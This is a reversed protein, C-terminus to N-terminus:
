RTNLNRYTLSYMLDHLSVRNLVCISSISVRNLVFGASFWVRNPRVDGNHGHMHLPTDGGGRASSRARPLGLHHHQQLVHFAFGITFNTNPTLMLFGSSSASGSENSPNSPLNGFAGVVRKVKDAINDSSLTKPRSFREAM